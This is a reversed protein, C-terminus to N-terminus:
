LGCANLIQKVTVEKLEHGSVSVVLLNLSIRWWDNTDTPVKNSFIVRGELKYIEMKNTIM